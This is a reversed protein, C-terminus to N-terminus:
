SRPNYAMVKRVYSACWNRHATVILSSAGRYTQISEPLSKHLNSTPWACQNISWGEKRWHQIMFIIEITGGILNFRGKSESLLEKAVPLLQKTASLLAPLM